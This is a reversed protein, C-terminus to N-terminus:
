RTEEITANKLLDDIAEQVTRGKGCLPSGTYEHWFNMCTCDDGEQDKPLEEINCEWAIYKGGSYTGGYRDSIIILGDLNDETIM